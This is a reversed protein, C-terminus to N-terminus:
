NEELSVMYRFLSTSDWFEVEKSHLSCDSPLKPKGQAMMVTHFITSDVRNEDMSLQRRATRRKLDAQLVM